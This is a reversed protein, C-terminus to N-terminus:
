YHYFESALHNIELLREKIKQDGSPRFDKLEVGAKQALFRLAEGFEMAERKMLWGYCDGATQCGFCKFIQRESSVIFSRTKEDHFPCLGKFNRGAKKLAVQQSILEVLDTKRKVEEIQDM